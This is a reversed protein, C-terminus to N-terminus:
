LEINATKHSYMAMDAEHLLSALDSHPTEVIKEGVSASVLISLEGVKLTQSSVREKLRNTLHEAIGRNECHSMVVFEDGGLRGVIDQPRSLANLIEAIIVLVQDGVQHGHTDNIAKFKDMDIFILVLYGGNTSHQELMKNAANEWGRRSMVPCLHDRSASVFASLRDKYLRGVRNSAAIALILAELTVAVILGYRYLFYSVDRFYLRFLMAIFLILLSLLVLGSGQVRKKAAYLTAIILGLIGLATLTGMVSSALANYPTSALAAIFGFILVGNCLSQITLYEWPKLLQKLDLLRCIFRQATFVTLGAFIIKLPLANLWQSLPWLIKLTGEQLIFFFGACLIYASYAHFGSNQLSRGLLGVYICLALCFGGFVSISLIHLSNSQQFTKIDELKIHLPNSGSASHVTLSFQYEGYPLLFAARASSLPEIRIDSYIQPQTVSDLPFHLAQAYDLNCSFQLDVLGAPLAIPQDLSQYSPSLLVCKAWSSNMHLAFLLTLFISIKVQAM